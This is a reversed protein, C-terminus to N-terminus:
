RNLQAELAADRGQLFELDPLVEDAPDADLIMANVSDLGTHAPWDPLDDGNPNGSRAFNVWYDATLDAVQQDPASAGALAADSSDPFLPIEGLNDFVYKVESAHVPNNPASGEAAPSAQTFWYVYANKGLQRQYEAVTRATWFVGASQADFAPAPPPAGGGPAGGGPGGRGPGGRGPGGGGRGGRGGGGMSFSFERANAGMLADVPHQRGEAFVIAPDEPVTYNDVIMTQVGPFAAAVEEATLARMDELSELGAASALNAGNQEQAALTANAGNPSVGGGMISQGIARHFLGETLPSTMLSTIAMAGASQGFITVNDPDGGFAEINDQVWELSAVMDMLGYNGSSNFEAEETLLPHALFGLPGLRYNMTVVVAGRAALNTGDYLPAAGGGDTFAGGYFYVMVPLEDDASDASTWVNLYLCDESMPPSGAMNAINTYTTDPQVCVDGFESADRVGDWPEVPQPERWRLDGVPPAGFPLGRFVRVGDVATDTGAVLGAQIELPEDLAAQACAATMMGALCAAGIRSFKLTM